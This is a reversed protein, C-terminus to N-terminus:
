RYSGWGGRSWSSGRSSSGHKPGGRANLALIAKPAKPAGLPPIARGGKNASTPPKTKPGRPALDLDESDPLEPLLDLDEGSPLPIEDPMLFELDREEPLPIWEPELLESDGGEPLPIWEPALLNLDEDEPLPIRVPDMLALDDKAPPPVPKPVDQAKPLRVKPSETGAFLYETCYRTEAEEASWSSDNKAQPKPPLRIKPSGAEAFLSEEAYASNEIYYLTELEEHEVKKSQLGALKEKRSALSNPLWRELRTVYDSHHQLQLQLDTGVADEVEGFKITTGRRKLEEIVEKLGHIARENRRATAKSEKTYNEIVNAMEQSHLKAVREEREAFSALGEDM